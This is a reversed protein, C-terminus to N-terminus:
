KKLLEKCATDRDDIAICDILATGYFDVNSCLIALAGKPTFTKDVYEQFAKNDGKNLTVLDVTGNCYSVFDPCSTDSYKKTEPTNKLYYKEILALEGFELFEEVTGISYVGNKDKPYKADIANAKSSLYNTFKTMQEASCAEPTPSPLLSMEDSLFDYNFDTAFIYPSALLLVAILISKM